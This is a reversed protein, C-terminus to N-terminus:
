RDKVYKEDIMYIKQGNYNLELDVPDFKNKAYCEKLICISKTYLNNDKIFLNKNRYSKYYVSSRDELYIDEGKENLFEYAYAGYQKYRLIILNDTYYIIPDLDGAFAGDETFYNNGILLKKSTKDYKIRVSEGNIYLYEEDTKNLDIKDLSYVEKIDNEVENIIVYDDYILFEFKQYITCSDCKYYASPYNSLEDCTIFKYHLDNNNKIKIERGSNDFFRYTEGDDYKTIVAIGFNNLVVISDNDETNSLKVDDIYIGDNKIYKYKNNLDAFFDFPGNENLKGIIFRFSSFKHPMNKNEYYENYNTIGSDDKNLSKVIFFATVILLFIILVILTKIWINIKKIKNNKM